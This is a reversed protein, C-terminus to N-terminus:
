HLPKRKLRYLKKSQVKGRAGTAEPHITRSSSGAQVGAPAFEAKKLNVPMRSPRKEKHTVLLAFLTKLNSFTYFTYNCFTNYVNSIWAQTLRRICLPICVVNEWDPILSMKVWERQVRDWAAEGRQEPTRHQSGRDTNWALERSSAERSDLRLQGRSPRTTLERRSDLALQGRSPRTTLEWERGRVVEPYPSIEHGLIRQRTERWFLCLFWRSQCGMWITSCHVSTKKRRVRACNFIYLKM